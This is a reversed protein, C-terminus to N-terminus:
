SHTRVKSRNKIQKLWPNDVNQAFPSSIFLNWILNAALAASNNPFKASLSEFAQIQTKTASPDGLMTVCHESLNQPTANSQIFEPVLMTEASLNVLSVFPLKVIRKAIAFNLKSMHYVVSFPTGVLAAELTATGSCVWAYNSHHLAEYTSTLYEIKVDLNKSAVASQIQHMVFEKSLTAAVPLLGIVAAFPLNQRKVEQGVEHLAEIMIPVLSKIESKRSGPLLGIRLTKSNAKPTGTELSFNQNKWQSISDKLPNGVFNAQIGHEKFYSEEFPLLCTLLDVSSALTKLRGKGHAWVKPAIHWVVLAGTSAAEPAFRLNFGPYDVLIVLQPKRRHLQESLSKFLPSLNGYNKLVDVFGMVALQEIPAIIDVGMAQLHAGGAGWVNLKMDSSQFLTYLQALLLSAQLDGSAEGAIICVDIIM